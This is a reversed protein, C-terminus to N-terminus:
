NAPPCPAPTYGALYMPMPLNSQPISSTTKGEIHTSRAATAKNAFALLTFSAMAIFVKLTTHLITRTKRCVFAM